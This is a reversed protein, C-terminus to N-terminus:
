VPFAYGLALYALDRSSVEHIEVPKQAIEPKLGCILAIAFEWFHRAPADGVKDFLDKIRTQVPPHTESPENGVSLRAVFYLGVLTGIARKGRVRDVGESSLAAYEEAKSFLTDFAYGDCQREEEKLDDPREPDSFFKAHNIEHLLAWSTAM